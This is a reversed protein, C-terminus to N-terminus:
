QNITVKMSGQEGAVEFSDGAKKGDPYEQCQNEIMGPITLCIKKGDTKYTGALQGGMGAFTGDPKYAIDIPMGMVEIVIGKETMAKVTDSPPAATQAFAPAAILAALAIAIKKM